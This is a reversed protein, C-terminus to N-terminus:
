SKQYLKLKHYLYEFNSYIDDDDTRVWKIYERIIESEFVAVVYYGFLQDIDYLDIKVKNKKVLFGLDELHQLLFDDMEFSTYLKKIISDKLIEKTKENEIDKIEFFALEYGSDNIEHKNFIFLDYELLLILDRSEKTFFDKKLQQLFNDKYTENLLLLQTRGFFVLFFTAFFLLATFIATVASWFTDAPICFIM